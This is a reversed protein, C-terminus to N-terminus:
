GKLFVTRTNQAMKQHCEDIQCAVRVCPNMVFVKKKSFDTKREMANSM